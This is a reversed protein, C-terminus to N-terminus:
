RSRGALAQLADNATLEVMALAREVDLVRGHGRLRDPIARQVVRRGSAVEQAIGRCPGILQLPDVNARSAKAKAMTLAIQWRGIRAVIPAIAARVERTDAVHAPKQRTKRVAAKAVEFSM